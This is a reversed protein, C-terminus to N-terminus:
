LLTLQEKVVRKAPRKAPKLIQAATALDAVVDRPRSTAAVKALTSLALDMTTRIAKAEEYIEDEHHAFHRQMVAKLWAPRYAVKTANGHRAADMLVDILIARYREPQLTVGRENLWSAPWLVVWALLRPRDKLFALGDGECVYFKVRIFDM